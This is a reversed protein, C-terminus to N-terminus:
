RSGPQYIGDLEVPVEKVVQEKQPDIKYFTTLGDLLWVADEGVAVSSHYSQLGRVPVHRISNDNLDIRDLIDGSVMWFSGFGVDASYCSGAIDAEIHVAQAIEEAVAIPIISVLTVVAAVAVKLTRHLVM